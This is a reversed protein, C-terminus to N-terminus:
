LGFGKTYGWSWKRKRCKPCPKWCYALWEILQFAYATPIIGILSVVILSPVVALWWWGFGDIDLVSKLAALGLEIVMVPFVSLIALYIGCSVGPIFGRADEYNCNRCKYWM